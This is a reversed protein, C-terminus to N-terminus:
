EKLFTVLDRNNDDLVNTFSNGYGFNTDTGLTCDGVASIVIDRVVTEKELVVAQEDEVHEVYEEKEEEVPEEIILKIEDLDVAKEEENHSCGSFLMLASLVFSLYRKKM